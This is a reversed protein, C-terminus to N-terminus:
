AHGGKLSEEFLRRFNNQQRRRKLYDVTEEVKPQQEQIRELHARAEDVSSGSSEFRRWPTWWKRRRM